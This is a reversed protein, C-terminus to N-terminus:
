LWCGLTKMSSQEITLSAQTKVQLGCCGVANMISANHVVQYPIGKEKARLVLDTHTTAGFPDGVVLLAVDKDASEALINDADQEVCDRDAIILERGYFEEQLFVFSLISEISTIPVRLYYLLHLGIKEKDQYPSSVIKIIELGM